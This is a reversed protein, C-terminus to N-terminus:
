YVVVPTPTNLPSGLAQELGYRWFCAQMRVAGANTAGADEDALEIRWVPTQGDPAQIFQHFPRVLQWVRTPDGITASAFEFAIGENRLELLQDPFNTNGSLRSSQEAVLLASQEYNHATGATLRVAVYLEKLVYVYQNSFTLSIRIHTENTAIKAAVSNSSFFWTLGVPQDTDALEGGPATKFPQDQRVAAIPLDIIAM